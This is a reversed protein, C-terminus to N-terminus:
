FSLSILQYNTFYITVCLYKFVNSTFYMLPMAVEQRNNKLKKILNIKKSITNTSIYIKMMYRRM